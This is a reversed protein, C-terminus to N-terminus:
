EPPANEWVGDETEISWPELVLMEDTFFYDTKKGMEIETNYPLKEDTPLTLHGEVTMYEYHVFKEPERKTRVMLRIARDTAAHEAFLPFVFFWDEDQWPFRPPVRQRVLAGYHAMGEVRVFPQELHVDGVPM